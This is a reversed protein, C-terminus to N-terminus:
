PRLAALTMSAFSSPRGRSTAGGGEHRQLANPGDVIRGRMTKLEQQLV